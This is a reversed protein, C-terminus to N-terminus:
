AHQDAITQPTEPSEVRWVVGVLADDRATPTGAHFVWLKVPDVGQQAVDLIRDGAVVMGDAPLM